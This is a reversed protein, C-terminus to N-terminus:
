LEPNIERFCVLLVVHVRVEGLLWLVVGVVRLVAHSSSGGVLGGPLDHVRCHVDPVPVHSSFQHYGLAALSSGLCGFTGFTHLCGVWCGLNLTGLPVPMFNFYLFNIFIFIRM